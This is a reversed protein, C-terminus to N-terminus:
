KAHRISLLVRDTEGRSMGSHHQSRLTDQTYSPQGKCTTGWFVSPNMRRESVSGHREDFAKQAARLAEAHEMTWANLAAFPKDLSRGLPTVMYEVGPPATDILRRELIGNRELRRLAQTLTKQAIGDILRRVENFRLAEPLAIAGLRPHEWQDAIQDLLLRDFEAM